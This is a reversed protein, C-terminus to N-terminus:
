QQQDFVRNSSSGGAITSQLQRAAGQISLV